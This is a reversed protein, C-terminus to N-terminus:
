MSQAVEVVRKHGVIAGVTDAIVFSLLASTAYVSLRFWLLLLFAHKMTVKHGLFGV